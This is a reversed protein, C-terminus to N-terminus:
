SLDEVHASPAQTKVLDIGQDRGVSTAYTESTGIVEGNAAKLNFYYQGNASYLREYRSDIPANTKVSDIRKECGGRTKYQESRLIIENNGTSKLRFFYESNVASKKIEFKAM